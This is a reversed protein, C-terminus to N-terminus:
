PEPPVDEADAKLEGRERPSLQGLEEADYEDLEEPQDDEERDTELPDDDTKRLPVRNEEVDREEERDEMYGQDLDEESM